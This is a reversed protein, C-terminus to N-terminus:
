RRRRTSRRARRSARRISSLRGPRLVPADRRPRRRHDRDEDRQGRDALNPAGSSTPASRSRAAADDRLAHYRVNPWVERRRSRARASRGALAPRRGRARERRAPLALPHHRRARHERDAPLAGGSQHRCAGLTSVTPPTWRRRGFVPLPPAELTVVVETTPVTTRAFVDGSLGVAAVAAATVGIAFRMGVGPPMTDAPKATPLATVRPPHPSCSTLSSYKGTGQGEHVNRM